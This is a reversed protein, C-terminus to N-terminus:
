LFLMANRSSAYDTQFVPFAIPIQVAPNSALWPFKPLRLFSLPRVLSPKWYCSLKLVPRLPFFSGQHTDYSLLSKSCLVRVTPRVRVPLDGPGLSPSPAPPFIYTGVGRGSWCPLGGESGMSKGRLSQIYLRVHALGYIVSSSQGRVEAPVLRLLWVM